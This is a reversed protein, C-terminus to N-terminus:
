EHGLDWRKNGIKEASLTDGDGTYRASLQAGCVGHEAFQALGSISDKGDVGVGGFHFACGAIRIQGANRAFEVAQDDGGMGVHGLLDDLLGRCAVNAADPEVAREALAADGFRSGLFAGAGADGTDDAAAREHIALGDIEGM